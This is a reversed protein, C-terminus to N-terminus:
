AVVPGKALVDSPKTPPTRGPEISVAYDTFGDTAGPAGVPRGGAQGTVVDFAGLATPDSGARLGWLVYTKDNANVPLAVSYIKRQGDSLLVAAQAAGTDAALIAHQVGPRDLQSVLDAIGQAQATLTQSQQELQNTRVVLGGVAIVALLAVSAAVLRPRTIWSGRPRAAPRAPPGSPVQRAARHRPIPPTVSEAHVPRTQQPVDAVAAMLSERLSPPPEVQEVASGLQSLVQEADEVASRCSSCGPVHLIVAMEEDPELAHLAWGVAQGNM